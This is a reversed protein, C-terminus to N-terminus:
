IVFSDEVGATFTVGSADTAPRGGSDIPVAILLLGPAAAYMLRIIPCVSLRVGSVKMFGAGCVVTYSCLWYRHLSSRHTIYGPGNQLVESGLVITLLTFYQRLSHNQSDSITAM